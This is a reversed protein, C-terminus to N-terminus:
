INDKEILEEENKNEKKEEEDFKKNRLIALCILLPVALLNISMICCMPLWPYKNKFRDSIIGYLIPTPGVIIQMCINAFAYGSASLKKDVCSIIIGQILALISSNFIHYCITIICVSILSKM